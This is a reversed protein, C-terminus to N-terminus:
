LAEGEREGLEAEILSLLEDILGAVERNRALVGDVQESREILLNRFATDQLLVELELTSLVRGGGTGAGELTLEGPRVQVRQGISVADLPVRSSLFPMLRDAVFQRAGAEQRADKDLAQAYTLLTARIGESQIVRMRGSSVLDDFVSRVPAFQRVYRAQGIVTAATDASPTPGGDTSEILRLLGAHLAERAALDSNLEARSDVLEARLGALYERELQREARNEWAADVAFAMLISLSIVVGEAVL